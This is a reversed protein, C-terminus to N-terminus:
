SHTNSITIALRVDGSDRFRHVSIHKAPEIAVSHRLLITEEVARDYENKLRAPPAHRRPPEEHTPPQHIARMHFKAIALFM